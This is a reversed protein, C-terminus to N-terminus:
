CDRLRHSGFSGSPEVCRENGNLWEVDDIDVAGPWHPDVPKIERHREFDYPRSAITGTAVIV